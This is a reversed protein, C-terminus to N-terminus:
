TRVGRSQSAAAKPSPASGHSATGPAPSEVPAVDRGAECAAPPATSTAGRGGDVSAPADHTRHYRHHVVVRDAHERAAREAETANAHESVPVPAGAHYVRWTARDDPIVHVESM